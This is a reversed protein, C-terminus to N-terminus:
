VPRARGHCPRAARQRSAARRRRNRSARAAARTRRRHRARSPAWPRSVCALGDRAGPRPAAMLPVAAPTRSPRGVDVAARWRGEDVAGRRRQANGHGGLRSPRTRPAAARHSSRSRGRTPRAACRVREDCVVQRCGLLRHNCSGVVRVLPVAERIEDPACFLARFTSFVPSRRSVRETSTRYSSAAAFPLGAEKPDATCGEHPRLRALRRDTRLKRRPLALLHEAPRM